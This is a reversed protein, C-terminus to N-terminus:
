SINGLYATNKQAFLAIQEYKEDMSPPVNMVKKFKECNQLVQKCDLAINNAHLVMLCMALALANTSHFTQGRPICNNFM